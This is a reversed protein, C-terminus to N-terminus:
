VAALNEDRVLEVLTIKGELSLLAISLAEFVSTGPQPVPHPQRLASRKQWDSVGVAIRRPIGAVICCM